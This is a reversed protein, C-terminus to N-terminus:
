LLHIGAELLVIALGTLVVLSVYAIRRGLPRERGGATAIGVVALAVIGVADAVQFATRMTWVGLGALLFAGTAPLAASVISWSHRLEDWVDRASLQVGEDARRSVLQSLGHALWIAAAGVGVVAASVLATPRAELTLGAIAVLTVITGYIYDALWATARRHRTPTPVPGSM